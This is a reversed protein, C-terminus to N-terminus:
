GREKIENVLKSISERTISEKEILEGLYTTGLVEGEDIIGNPCTNGNKFDFPAQELFELLNELGKDAELLATELKQIKTEVGDYDPHRELHACNEITYEKKTWLFQKTINNYYCIEGM